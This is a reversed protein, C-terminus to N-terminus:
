RRALQFLTALIGITAVFGAGMMTMMRIQLRYLAEQFDNRTALIAQELDRKTALIAQELDKRTTLITQELDKRTLELDKRTASIAQELDKRTLELDRKTVLENTVAEAFVEAIAEAQLDPMGAERLRQAVKLTDTPTTM